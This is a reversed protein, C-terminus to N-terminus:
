LSWSPWTMSSIVTGCHAAPTTRLLRLRESTPASGAFHLTLSDVGLVDIGVLQFGGEYNAKGLDDHTDGIFITKSEVCRILLALNRVVIFCDDPVGVVRGLAVDNAHLSEDVQEGVVAHDVGALLAVATLLQAVHHHEHALQSGVNV